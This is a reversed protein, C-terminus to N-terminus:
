KELIFSEGNDYVINGKSLLRNVIEDTRYEPKESFPGAKDSKHLLCLDWELTMNPSFPTYWIHTSSFSSNTFGFIQQRTVEDSSIKLENLNGPAYREAFIIMEKQYITNAARFDILYENEPLDKSIISARPVLPQYPFISILCSAVILFLITVFAFNKIRTRKFRTKLFRDLGWLTLGVLFPSLVIAYFM